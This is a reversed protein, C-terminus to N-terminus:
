GTGRSSTTWASQLINDACQFTSYFTIASIAYPALKCILAWRRTIHWVTISEFSLFCPLKSLHPSLDLVCLKSYGGCIRRKGSFGTRGHLYRWNDFIIPQGPKLQVKIEFQKMNLINTWERAAQYWRELTILNKWTQADRDDNNWRILLPARRSDNREENGMIPRAKSGTKKGGSFVAAGQTNIAGNDLEGVKTNGRAHFLIKQTRLLDYLRPKTDGLYAAAAYGDVFISEGGSGENHSLLHFM